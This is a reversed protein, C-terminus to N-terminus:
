NKSTELPLAFGKDILGFVDFHYSLLIQLDHYYIHNVSFNEKDWFTNHYGHTILNSVSFGPTTFLETLPRLLPKCLHVTDKTLCMSQTERYTGNRKKVEGRIFYNNNTKYPAELGILEKVKGELEVLLKYPLYAALHKLELNDIVTQVQQPTPMVM